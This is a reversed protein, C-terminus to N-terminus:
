RCTAPLPPYWLPSIYLPPTIAHPKLAKFAHASPPFLLRKPSYIKHPDADPLTTIPLQEFLPPINTFSFELSHSSLVPVTAEFVTLPDNINNCQQAPRNVTERFAYQRNLFLACLSILRVITEAVGGPTKSLVHYTDM